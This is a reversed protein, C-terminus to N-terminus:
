ICNTLPTVLLVKRHYRMHVLIIQICTYSELVGSYAIMLGDISYRFIEQRKPISQEMSMRMLGQVVVWVQLVVGVTIVMVVM